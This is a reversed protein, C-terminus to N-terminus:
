RRGGPYKIATVAEFTLNAMARTSIPDLVLGRELDALRRECDAVRFLRHVLLDGIPWEIGQRRVSTGERGHDPICLALRLDPDLYGLGPGARGTIHHGEEAPRGCIVCAPKM